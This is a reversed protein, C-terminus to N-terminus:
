LSEVIDGNHRAILRAVDEESEAFLMLDAIEDDEKRGEWVEGCRITSRSVPDWEILMSPAKKRERFSPLQIAAVQGGPLTLELKIMRASSELKSRDVVVATFIYEDPKISIAMPVVGRRDIGLWRGILQVAKGYRAALIEIEAPPVGPQVALSSLHLMTDSHLELLRADRMGLSRSSSVYEAFCAIAPTAIEIGWLDRYLDRLITRTIKHIRLSLGNDQEQVLFHGRLIRMAQTTAVERDGDRIGIYICAADALVDRPIATDAFLAAYVLMTSSLRSQAEVEHITQRYLEYLKSSSDAPLGRLTFSPSSELSRLLDSVSLGENLNLLSSAAVVALPNNGVARALSSASERERAPVLRGALESAEPPEMNDVEVQLKAQLGVLMTRSTLVVISKTRTTVFREVQDIAQVNDVVVFRPAFDSAIYKAFQFDAPEGSLEYEAELM